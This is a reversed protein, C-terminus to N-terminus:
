LWMETVTLDMKVFKCPMFLSYAVKSRFLGLGLGRSRSFLLSRSLYRRIQNAPLPSTVAGANLNASSVPSTPLSKNPVTPSQPTSNGQPVRSLELNLKIEKKRFACPACRLSLWKQQKILAQERARGQLYVRANYATDIHLSLSSFASKMDSNKNNKCNLHRYQNQKSPLINKNQYLSCGGNRHNFLISDIIYLQQQHDVHTNQRLFVNLHIYHYISKQVCFYITYAIRPHSTFLTFKWEFRSIKM